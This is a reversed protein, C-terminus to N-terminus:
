ESRERFFSEPQAETDEAVVWGHEIPLRDTALDLLMTWVVDNAVSNPCGSRIPLQISRVGLNLKTSLKTRPRM